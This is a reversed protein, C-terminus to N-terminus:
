CLALLLLAVTFCLVLMLREPVGPASSGTMNKKEDKESEM